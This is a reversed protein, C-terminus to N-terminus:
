DEPRHCSRWISGPSSMIAAFLLVLALHAITGPSGDVRFGIPAAVAVTGIAGLRFGRITAPTTPPRGYPTSRSTM